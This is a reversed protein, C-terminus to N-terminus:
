HRVAGPTESVNRDKRELRLLEDFFREADQHSTARNEDDLQKTWQSEAQRWKWGADHLRERIEEAPKVDFAIAMQNFRNDRGLRMKPGDRENSLRETRSWRPGSPAWTKTAEAPIEPAHSTALSAPLPEAKPM